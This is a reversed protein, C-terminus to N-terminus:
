RGAAKDLVGVVRELEDPAFYPTGTTAKDAHPELMMATHSEIVGDAM